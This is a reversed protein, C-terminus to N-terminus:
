MLLIRIFVSKPLFDKKSVTAICAMPFIIQSMTFAELFERNIGENGEIFEEDVVVRHNGIIKVYSPLLYEPFQAKSLAFNGM